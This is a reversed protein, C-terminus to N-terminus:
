GSGGRVRRIAAAGLAAEWERLRQLRTSSGAGQWAFDVRRGEIRGSARFLRPDPTRRYDKTEVTIAERLRGDAFLRACVARDPWGRRLVGDECVLERTANGRPGRWQLRLRADGARAGSGDDTFGEIRYGREEDAMRASRDIWIWGPVGLEGYEVTLTAVRADIAEQVLEFLRAVTAASALHEPVAGPRGGRVTVRAPARVDPVCFCVLAADYHYDALGAGRWQARAADLSRQAAGSAIGADVPEASGGQALASTSGAVLALLAALM